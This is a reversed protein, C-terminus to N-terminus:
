IQHIHEINWLASHQAPMASYEANEDKNSSDVCSSGTLGNRFTTQAHKVVHFQGIPRPKQTTAPYFAGM